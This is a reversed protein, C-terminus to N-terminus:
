PRMRILVGRQEPNTVYLWRDQAPQPANRPTHGTRPLRARHRGHEAWSHTTPVPDRPPSTPTTLAPLYRTESQEVPQGSRQATRRSIILTGLVLILAGLPVIELPTLLRNHVLAGTLLYGGLGALGPSTFHEIRERLRENIRAGLSLGLQSVILTQLAILAVITALRTPHSGIGVSVGIALEDLSISLGLGLLALGRASTLRRAKAVEGEGREDDDDDDDDAWKLYGALLLLLGGSLYDATSGIANGLSSGLALGVLPMGGEFLVFIASIRWRAWGHLQSTGGVVAAIAFTDLGLPLVSLLLSFFGGNV